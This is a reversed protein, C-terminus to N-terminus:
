EDVLGIVCTAALSGVAVVALAAAEAGMYAWDCVAAAVSCAVFVLLFLLVSRKPSGAMRWRMLDM